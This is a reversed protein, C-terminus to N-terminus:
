KKAGLKAELLTTLTRADVPKQFLGDLGLEAYDATMSLNDGVSSVMLIPIDGGVLRLEKVLSNGSDVEEMMLDVIVLDPRDRKFLRLGDEASSAETMEYGAAELMVRMADLFDQDDDVYLIRHKKDAM